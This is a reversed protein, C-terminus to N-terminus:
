RISDLFHELPLRAPLLAAFDQGLRSLDAQRFADVCAGPLQTGTAAQFQPLWRGAKTDLLGAAGM